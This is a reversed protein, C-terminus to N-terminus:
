SKDPYLQLLTIRGSSHGVCVVNRYVATCQSRYEPPLRLLAKTTSSIWQDNVFITPLEKAQSPLSSLLPSPLSINGRPTELYRGNSSFAVHSVPGPHGELTSRCSGMAADWLRVTMDNSASAVLQGDPSFAVHSVWSSHGKLTSRCSGM